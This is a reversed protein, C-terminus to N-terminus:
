SGTVVITATMSPHISCHYPFEGAETFTFQFTGGRALTGSDFVGNDSTVTHSMADNNTWTVTTGARVTLGSPVFALNAISVQAENGAVTTTGGGGTTTAGSGDGCAVLLLVALAIVAVIAILRPKSM